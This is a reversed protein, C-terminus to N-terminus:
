IESILLGCNMVREVGYVTDYEWREGSNVRTLYIRVHKNTM